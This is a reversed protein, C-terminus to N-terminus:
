SYMWPSNITSHFLWFLNLSRSCFNQSYLVRPQQSRQLNWLLLDRVKPSNEVSHFSLKTLLTQSVFGAGFLSNNVGWFSLLLDWFIAQTCFRSGRTEKRLQAFYRLGHTGVKTLRLWCAEEGEWWQIEMYQSGSFIHEAAGVSIGWDVMSQSSMREEDENPYILVLFFINWVAAGVFNGCDTLLQSNRQRLWSSREEAIEPRSSFESQPFFEDTAAANVETM